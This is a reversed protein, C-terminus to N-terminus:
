VKSSIYPDRGGIRRKEKAEGTSVAPIIAVTICHPHTNRPVNLAVSVIMQKLQQQTVRGTLIVYHMPETEKM